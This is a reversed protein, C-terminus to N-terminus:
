CMAIISLSKEPEDVAFFCLFLSFPLYKFIQVEPANILYEISQQMRESSDIKPRNRYQIIQLSFKDLLLLLAILLLAVILIHNQKCM